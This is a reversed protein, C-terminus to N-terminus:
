RRLCPGVHLGAAQALDIRPEHLDLSDLGVPRTAPITTSHRSLREEGDVVHLLAEAAERRKVAHAQPDGAARDGTEDPGVAGALRREEVHHAAEQRRIRALYPEASVTELPAGSVLDGPEADRPCELDRSRQR